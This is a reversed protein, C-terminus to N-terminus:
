SIGDALIRMGMGIGGYLMGMGVCTRRESMHTGCSHGGKTERENGM